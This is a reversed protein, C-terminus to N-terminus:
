KMPLMRICVPSPVDATHGTPSLRGTAPDIRFVVITNSNQNEALLFKGAPDLAFNRPTKGQTKVNEVYTLKGTAPDIEYVVISDHGRNSGYLFKGSPHVLVEATSLGPQDRDEDPLTSITQLTTLVGQEADYAFATVTLAMENIVYAFKGSPHFSFHRPGAGADVRAFPPDHPTLTGRQDDFAYVLVQDLGLDAALAFRNAADLNISHARPQTQRKPDVSSGQHQISSSAERLRGDEDIPLCAVSGSGYNAVLVYGGTADVTLHCPGEGESSQENLQKLSGDQSDISFAAVGGSGAHKSVAYLFKKSPHIALFSPNEIGPAVGLRTLEGTEGDLKLRYIGESGTRGTYTGVYVYYDQDEESEAARAHDFMMLGAVLTFATGLLQGISVRRNM